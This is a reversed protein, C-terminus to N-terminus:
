NFVMCFLKSSNFSLNNQVGFDHINILKQLAGPSPAILCIDDAYMVNNVTCLQRNSM